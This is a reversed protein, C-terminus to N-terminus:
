KARPETRETADRVAQASNRAAEAAADTAEKTTRNAVDMAPASSALVSKAFQRQTALLQEAFDFVNDVVAESVASRGSSSPLNDGLKQVNRAMTSAASTVADQWVRVAQVLMDQGERVAGSLHDQSTSM